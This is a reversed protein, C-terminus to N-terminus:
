LHRIIVPEIKHGQEELVHRQVSLGAFQIGYKIALVSTVSHIMDM